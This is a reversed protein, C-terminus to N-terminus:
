ASLLLRAHGGSILYAHWVRVEGEQAVNSLILRGLIAIKACWRRDCSKLAKAAAFCDYFGCFVDLACVPEDLLVSSPCDKTAARSIHYRSQKGLAGLLTPEDRTIDVVLTFFENCRGVPWPQLRQRCILIDTLPYELEEDFWLEGYTVDKGRLRIM